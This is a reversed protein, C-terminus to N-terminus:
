FACAVCVLVFVLALMICVFLLVCVCLVPLDSTGVFPTSPRLSDTQHPPVRSIPVPTGMHSRISGIKCTHRPPAVLAFVVVGFGPPAFTLFFCFSRLLRVSLWPMAYAIGFVVTTPRFACRVFPVPRFLVVFLIGFVVCCFLLM